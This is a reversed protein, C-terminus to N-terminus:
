LKYIKRCLLKVKENVVNKFSNLFPKLHNWCFFLHKIANFYVRHIYLSLSLSLFFCIKSLFMVLVLCWFFFFFVHITFKFNMRCKLDWQENPFSLTIPLVTYKPIHKTYWNSKFYWTSSFCCSVSFYSPNRKQKGKERERM